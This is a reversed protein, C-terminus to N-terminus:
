PTGRAQPRPPWPFFPSTRAQYDRFAAGRSRLMHAELPPIGSVHVLLGYMALPALVAIWGFPYQGSLDIAIVPFALWGLWQFLYNPHRSWGWLGTDMVRKRNGLDSRFRDLQRDALAEGTIAIALLALGILDQIGLTDGPRYAAVLVAAVLPVTALAQGQLLWVMRGPADPGWQRALEAYRPDDSSRRTRSAIHSGLRLMWALVLAAVLWQRLTLAPGGMPILALTVGVIGLGLSWFVDVWGSNGTRQQVLWAWFMTMALAFWVTGIMGILSTVTM